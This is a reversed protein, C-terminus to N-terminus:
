KIKTLSFGGQFGHLTVPAEEILIIIIIMVIIIM